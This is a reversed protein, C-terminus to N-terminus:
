RWVHDANISDSHIIVFGSFKMKEGLARQEEEKKEVDNEGGM